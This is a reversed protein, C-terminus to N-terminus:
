VDGLIILDNLTQSKSAASLLKLGKSNVGDGHEATREREAPAQCFNKNAGLGLTPRGGLRLLCVGKSKASNRKRRGVNLDEGALFLHM